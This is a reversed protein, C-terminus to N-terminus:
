NNRDPNRGGDHNPDNPRQNDPGREGGYTIVPKPKKTPPPPPSPDDIKRPACVGDKGVAAIVLKWSGQRLRHCKCQEVIKQHEAKCAGGSEKCSEWASILKNCKATYSANAPSLGIVAASVIALSITKKTRM